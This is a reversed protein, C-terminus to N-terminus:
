APRTAFLLSVGAVGPVWWLLACYAPVPELTETWLESESHTAMSFMGLAFAALSIVFL